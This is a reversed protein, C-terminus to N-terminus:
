KPKLPAENSEFVDISPLPHKCFPLELELPDDVVPNVIDALQQM